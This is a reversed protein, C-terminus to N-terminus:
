GQRGSREQLFFVPRGHAILAALALFATVPLILPAALLLLSMDFARKISM